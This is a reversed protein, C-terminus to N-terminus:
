NKFGWNKLRKLELDTDIIIDKKNYPAKYVPNPKKNNLRLVENELNHSVRKWTVVKDQLTDVLATTLEIDGRTITFEDSDSVSVDDTVVKNSLSTM